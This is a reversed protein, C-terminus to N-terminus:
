RSACLAENAVYFCHKLVTRCSDKYTLMLWRCLPCSQQQFLEFDAAHCQLGDGAHMHAGCLSTKWKSIGWKVTGMLSMDHDKKEEGKVQRKVQEWQQWM